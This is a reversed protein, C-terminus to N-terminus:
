GCSRTARDPVMSKVMELMAHHFKEHPFERAIGWGQGLYFQVAVTNSKVVRLHCTEHGRTAIESEGQALLRRGVGRRRNERLVWLDSIWEQNTLMVGVIKSSCVAVWALSWDEEELNLPVPNPAFLNGFTENAVTRVLARVPDHEHSQPQRILVETAM